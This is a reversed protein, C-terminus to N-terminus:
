FAIGRIGIFIVYGLAWIAVGVYIFILLLPIPQNKGQIGEPYEEIASKRDRRGVPLTEGRFAIYVLILAILGLFILLMTYQFDLLPFFRM